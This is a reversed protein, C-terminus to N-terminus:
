HGLLLGTSIFTIVASQEGWHYWKKKNSKVVRQTEPWWWFRMQDYKCKSQSEFGPSALFCNSSWTATQWLSGCLIDKGFQPPNWAMEPQCKLVQRRRYARNVVNLLLSSIIVFMAKLLTRQGPVIGVFYCKDANFVLVAWHWLVSPYAM